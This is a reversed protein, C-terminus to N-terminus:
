VGALLADALAIHQGSRRTPSIPSVRARVTSLHWGVLTGRCFRVGTILIRGAAIVASRHRLRRYRFGFHSNVHEDSLVSTQEVRSSATTGGQERSRSSGPGGRGL